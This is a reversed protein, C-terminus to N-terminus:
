VLLSHAIQSAVFKIGDLTAFRKELTSYYDNISPQLKVARDIAEKVNGKEDLVIGLGVTEVSRNNFFIEPFDFSIFQPCVLPKKNLNALWITNWAARAFVAQIAPHGVYRPHLVQASPIQPLPQNVYFTFGMKIVGDYLRTLYPIGSVLVYVGPNLDEVFEESKPPHFLPPSKIENVNMTDTENNQYSFVGPVPSFYLIQNSEAEHVNEIARKILSDESSFVKEEFGLRLIKELSGVATLYSPIEGMKVNPNRSVSCLISKNSFRVERGEFTKTILDTKLYSDIQNQIDLYRNALLNLTIQFDRGDYLLEGLLKGLVEDFLFLDPEKKLVLGYDEQLLRKMKEGYVHPIIIHIYDGSDLKTLLKERVSMALDVARLFPGNGCGFNVLIGYKM